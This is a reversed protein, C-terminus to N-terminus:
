RALKSIDISYLASREPTAERALRKFDDILGEVARMEERAMASNGGRLAKLQTELAAAAASVDRFGMSGSSGKIQHAIDLMCAVHHGMSPEDQIGDAFHRGVAEAQEVITGHHRRLLARLQEQATM